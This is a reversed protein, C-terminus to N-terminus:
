TDQRTTPAPLTIATLTTTGMISVASRWIAPERYRTVGYTVDAIAPIGTYGAPFLVDGTIDWLTIIATRPATLTVSAPFGNSTQVGGVFVRRWDHGGDNYREVAGPDTSDLNHLIYAREISPVGTWGVPWTYRLKYTGATFSLFQHFCVYLVNDATLEGNSDTDSDANLTALVNAFGSAPAGYTFTVAGGGTTKLTCIPSAPATNTRATLVYYLVSDGPVLNATTDGDVPPPLEEPGTPEDDDRVTVARKAQMTPAPKAYPFDIIRQRMEKPM